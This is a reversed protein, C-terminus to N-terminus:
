KKYHLKLTKAPQSNQLRLGELVRRPSAYWPFEPAVPGTVAWRQLAGDLEVALVALSARWVAYIARGHMVDEVSARDSAKRKRGWRDTPLRDQKVARGEPASWGEFWDPRAGNKANVILLAVTAAQEVRVGFAAVRGNPTIPRRLWQGDVKEIQQSAAAASARDWIMVEDDRKWEIWMEGAALVADHVIMADDPLKLGQAKLAAGSNDVRTGLEVYQGLNGSVSRSPGVPKLLSVQRDICHERYAWELLREIDIQEKM